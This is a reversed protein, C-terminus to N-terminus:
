DVTFGIKVTVQWHAIKGDKVHGRTDLVQFWRIDRVSEAAKALAVRVADDSGKPSSGTLEISKYVHESMAHERPRPNGSERRAAAADIGPVTSFSGRPAPAFPTHLPSLWNLFDVARQRRAAPILIAMLISLACDVLACHVSATRSRRGTASSWGHSPATVSCRSRKGTSPTSPSMRSKEPTPPTTTTRCDM